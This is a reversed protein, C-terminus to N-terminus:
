GRHKEQFSAILWSEPVPGKEKKYCKDVVAKGGYVYVCVWKNVFDRIPEYSSTSPYQALSVCKSLFCKTFIQWTYVRSYVLIQTLPGCIWICILYYIYTM